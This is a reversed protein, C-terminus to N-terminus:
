IKNKLNGRLVLGFLWEPTGISFAYKEWLFMLIGLFGIFTVVTFVFYVLTLSMRFLSIFIYEILFLNLSAKGYFKLMKIFINHINKIDLIYFVGGIFLLDMGLHYFIYPTTATLLFKPLGLVPAIDQYNWIDLLKLYPYMEYYVVDTTNKLQLGTIIGFIVCIAGSIMLNQFLKRYAVESGERLVEYFKEGIIPALFCISLWPLLTYEPLPSSIMLDLITFIVNTNKYLWLAERLPESIILIILGIVIRPKVSIKQAYYTFIQGFGILMLINWGWLNLTVLNMLVGLTIVTLGRMFINSRIARESSNDQKRKVTFIVSISSLVIFMSPGMFELLIQAAGALYVSGKDMWTLGFHLAIILIMAVGRSVDLAAIRRQINSQIYINKDLAIINEKDSM